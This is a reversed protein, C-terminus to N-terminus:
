WDDHRWRTLPDGRGRRSWSSIAIDAPAVGALRGAREDAFGGARAWTPRGPWHRILGSASREAMVEQRHWAASGLMGIIM